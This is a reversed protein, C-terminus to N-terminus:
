GLSVDESSPPRKSWRIVQNRGERKAGYMAQDARAIWAESTEEPTWSAVGVSATMTLKRADLIMPRNALRDRFVDLRKAAAWESHNPLVVLYEEGGWRCLLSSKDKFTQALLDAVHRIARDGVPHGFRDNISKFFDIDVMGATLPEGTLCSVMMEQEIRSDLGRRNLLQTLPDITGKLEAEVLEERLVKIQHGMSALQTASRQSRAQLSVSVTNVAREAQTQLEQLDETALANSLEKLVQSVDEDEKLEEVLAGQVERVLGLFASKLAPLTHSVFVSEAKRRRIVYQVADTLNPSQPYSPLDAVVALNDLDGTDISPVQGRLLFQQLSECRERFQDCSQQPISFSERGLYSVLDSLAQRSLSVQHDEKSILDETYATRDTPIKRKSFMGM